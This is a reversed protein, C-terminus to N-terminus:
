SPGSPALLLLLPRVNECTADNDDDDDDKIDDKEDDENNDENDDDIDSSPQTCYKGTSGGLDSIVGTAIGQYLCPPSHNFIGVYYILWRM